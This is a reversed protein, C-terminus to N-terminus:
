QPELRPIACGDCRTGYTAQCVGAPGGVCVWVPSRRAAMSAGCAHAWPVGEPRLEPVEVLPGGAPPLGPFAEGAACGFGLPACQPGKIIHPFSLTNPASCHSLVAGKCLGGREGGMFFLPVHARWLTCICTQKLPFPSLPDHVRPTHRSTITLARSGARLYSTGLVNISKRPQDTRQALSRKVHKATEEQNTLSVTM